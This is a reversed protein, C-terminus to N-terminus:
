VQRNFMAAAGALAPHALETPQVVVDTDRLEKELAHRFLQYSQTIGGGLIIAQLQYPTTLLCRITEALASGIREFALLAASDGASARAALTEGDYGYCRRFNAGLHDGRRESQLLAHLAEPPVGYDGQELRGNLVVGVGIGTGVTLGIFDHFTRGEGFRAVGLAFLNADTTM